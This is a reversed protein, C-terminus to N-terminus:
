YLSVRHQSYYDIDEDNFISAGSGKYKGLCHLRLYVVQETSGLSVGKM